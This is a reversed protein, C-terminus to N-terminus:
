ARRQWDTSHRGSVLGCGGISGGRRHHALAAVSPHQQADWASAACCLVPCCVVRTHMHLVTFHCFPVSGAPILLGGQRLRQLALHHCGDSGTGAPAAIPALQQAQQGLATAVDQHVGSQHVHAAASDARIVFGLNGPPMLTKSTGAPAAIPALQQAQQGLVKVVDGHAGGLEHDRPLAEAEHARILGQVHAQM